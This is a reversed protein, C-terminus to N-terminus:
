VEGVAADDQGAAPREQLLEVSAPALSAAQRHLEGFLRQRRDHEAGPFHQRVEVQEPSDREFLDGCAAEARPAGWSRHEISCYFPRTGRLASTMRCHVMRRSISRARPAPTVISSRAASQLTVVRVM